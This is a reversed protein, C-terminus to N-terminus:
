GNGDVFYHPNATSTRLPATIPGPPPPPPPSQSSGISTADSASNNSSNTDGGGTVSAANIVTAPATASVNVTLTISPYSAGGALVDARTCTLSSLTCTWGTGSMGTATLGTPLSDTVTVTGSTAGSGANRVSLTYTAGTQGQVFSGSHQKTLTLDPTPPPTAG